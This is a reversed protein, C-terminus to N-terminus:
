RRRSIWVTVSNEIWFFGEISKVFEVCPLFFPFRGCDDSELEPDDFAVSFDSCRASFSREEVPSGESTATEVLGLSSRRCCWARGPRGYAVGFAVKAEFRRAPPPSSSSAFSALVGLRGIPQGRARPAASAPSRVLSQSCCVIVAEAGACMRGHAIRRQWQEVGRCCGGSRVMQMHISTHKM